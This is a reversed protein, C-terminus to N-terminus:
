GEAKVPLDTAPKPPVAAKRKFSGSTAAHDPLRLVPLFVDGSM